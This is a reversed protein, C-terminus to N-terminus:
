PSFADLQGGKILKDLVKQLRLLYAMACIKYDYNLLSIPRWNDLDVREGNKYLLTNVGKRQTNSLEGKRFGENISDVLINKLDDWFAKYFESTLGDSGPTKNIQLRQVAQTCEDITLVEECLLADDEELVSVDCGDLYWQM